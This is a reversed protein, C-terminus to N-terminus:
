CTEMKQEFAAYSVSGAQPQNAPHAPNAPSTPQKAPQNAAQSAPLNAAQSGPLLVAILTSTYMDVSISYGVSYFSFLLFSCVRFLAGGCRHLFRGVASCLVDAVFHKARVKNVVLLDYLGVFLDFLPCRVFTTCLVFM